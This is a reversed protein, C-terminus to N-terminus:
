DIRNLRVFSQYPFPDVSSIVIRDKNKTCFLCKNQLIQCEMDFLLEPNFHQGNVRVEFHLHDTTARGTRGVLGIPQGAKVREGHKVLNRSNHSYVTELGNFHRIVIVNGYAEYEKAMRIIGDFAARITDNAFTKLDIGSHGVRKGAYPSIVKAGPLPFCYNGRQLHFLDILLADNGAFLKPDYSSVHNIDHQCFNETIDFVPEPPIETKMLAVPELYSYLDIRPLDFDIITPYIVPIDPLKVTAQNRIACATFATLLLIWGLCDLRKKSM